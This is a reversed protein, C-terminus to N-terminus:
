EDCEMIDQLEQIAEQETTGFGCLMFGEDDPEDGDRYAVWDFQRMPIPPYLYHTIIKCDAM